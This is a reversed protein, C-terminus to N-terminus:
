SEDLGLQSAIAVRTQKDYRQLQYSLSKLLQEASMLKGNSTSISLGYRKAVDILAGGGFKADQLGSNLANLSNIVSQTDGGFRKLAGGMASINEINYGMLSTSHGLKTNFEAFGNIVGQMIKYSFYTAAISNFVRGFRKLTSEAKQVGSDLPKTDVGFVIRFQKLVDNM